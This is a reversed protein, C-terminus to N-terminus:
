LQDDLRPNEAHPQYASHPLNLSSLFDNNSIEIIVAGMYLGPRQAGGLGMLVRRGFGSAGWMGLENNTGSMQAHM